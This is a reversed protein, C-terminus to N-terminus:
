ATSGWIMGVNRDKVSKRHSILTRMDVTTPKTLSAPRPKRTTCHIRRLRKLEIAVAIMAITNTTARNSATEASPDVGMLEVGATRNGFALLGSARARVATMEVEPLAEVQDLTKQWDKLRLTNERTDTWGNPVVRIHGAGSESVARIQMEAGGAMWSAALLAIGSGVGIGIMSLISRRTNRFLSRVAYTAAVKGIM